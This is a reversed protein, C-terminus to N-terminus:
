IEVSTSQQWPSIVTSLSADVARSTWKVRPIDKQGDLYNWGIACTLSGEALGTESVGSVGKRCYQETSHPTWAFPSNESQALDSADFRIRTYSPWMDVLNSKHCAFYRFTKSNSVQERNPQDCQADNKLITWITAAEISISHSPASSRTNWPICLKCSGSMIPMGLYHIYQESLLFNISFFRIVGALYREQMGSQESMLPYYFYQKHPFLDVGVPWTIVALHWELISSETPPRFHHPHLRLLINVRVLKRRGGAGTRSGRGRSWSGKRLM